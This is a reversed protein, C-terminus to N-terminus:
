NLTIWIRGSSSHHLKFPIDFAELLVKDSLIEKRPGAALIEGDKLVLGMSFVPLIEEIRQTIFLVSPSNPKRVFSDVFELLFERSKMDLHVCAEDLIMISPMAMMSRAILVKVQEGSSLVEFPKEALKASDMSEMMELAKKKEKETTKRYLGITGDIGSQVIDIATWRSSTWNQLFPSVWAIKKRVEFIDCNGFRNGLVSIEAGFKPWVLGLLMRTLSTKGAGNAGLIFWNEGRRVEWNIDRLIERNGLM